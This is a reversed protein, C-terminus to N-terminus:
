GSDRRYSTASGLTERRRKNCQAIYLNCGFLHIGPFSIKMSIWLVILM